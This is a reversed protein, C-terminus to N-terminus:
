EARVRRADPTNVVGQLADAARGTADAMRLLHKKKDTSQESLGRLTKAAERLCIIDQSKQWTLKTIADKVEIKLPQKGSLQKSVYSTSHGCEAAVDDLTVGISQMLRRLNLIDDSGSSAAAEDRLEQLLIAPDIDEWGPAVKFQHIGPRQSTQAQALQKLLDSTEFLHQSRKESGASKAREEIIRAAEYLRVSKRVRESALTLIAEAVKATLRRKGM